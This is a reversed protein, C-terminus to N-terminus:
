GDLASISMNADIEEQPLFPYQNHLSGSVMTGDPRRESTIRPIREQSYAVNVECLVPGRQGVIEALHIDVDSNTELRCYRLGFARALDEFHPNVVGSREDSGVFRGNMFREQTSRISQYGGNNLVFIVANLRNSGITMLEQANFLISGDGTVLVGREGAAAVCAGVLAPLDWGM